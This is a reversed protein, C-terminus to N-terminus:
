NSNENVKVETNDKFMPSGLIIALVEKLMPYQLDGPMPYESDDFSCLGNSDACKFASLKSTDEFVGQIGIYEILYEKDVIFIYNDRYKYRIDNATYKNHQFYQEKWDGGEGFPIEFDPTGVFEFVTNNARIPQPIELKTRLACGYDIPCDIKSMKEVAAVISKLYLRRDGPRKELSDKLFKLRVASVWLKVQEQFPVDFQRGARESLIGIIENLTM